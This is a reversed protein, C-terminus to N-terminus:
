RLRQKYSANRTVIMSQSRITQLGSIIEKIRRKALVRDTKSNLLM